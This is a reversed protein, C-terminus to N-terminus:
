TRTKLSIYVMAEGSLPKWMWCYTEDREAALVGEAARARERKEPYSVDAGVHFHINFATEASSSFRWEIRDGSKLPVCLEKFKGGPISVERTFDAAESRGLEILHEKAAVPPCSMFSLALAGGAKWIQM